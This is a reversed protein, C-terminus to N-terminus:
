GDVLDGILGAVEPHHLLRLHGTRPLVVVRAGPLATASAVPVIGDGPARAAAGRSTGLTGAVATVRVHAPLRGPARGAALDRIGASRYDGLAAIPRAVDDRAALALGAAALRELPAGAHPTGLTVVDTVLAPWTAGDAQTTAAHIASCIVLGGMSHGILVLREVPVPWADVLTSLALALDQGNRAVPRGTTYRATVPTAGATHLADVVTAGWQGPTAGLGHVLVAVTGRMPGTMPGTAPGTMPGTMAGTAPASGVPQLRLEGALAASRGVLRDGFAAGLWASPRAHDHDAAWGM